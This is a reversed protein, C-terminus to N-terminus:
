EREKMMMECILFDIPWDLSFADDKDTIVGVCRIGVLSKCKLLTRVRCAFVLGNVYYLSEFEQSAPFKMITGVVNAFYSTYPKLRMDDKLTVMWEPRETVPSITVASDIDQDDLERLCDKIHKSTRFPLPPELCVVIDPHYSEYKDLWEVAHLVVDETPCDGSLKKPRFFPVEAGYEEAVKKINADDTSVIVRDFCKSDRAVRIAYSILPKNDLLKVNKREVRVSGGRAPIVALVKAM